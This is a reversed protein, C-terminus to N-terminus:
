EMMGFHCKTFYLMAIKTLLELIRTNGTSKLCFMKKEEKFFKSFEANVEEEESLTLSYREMLFPKTADNIKKSYEDHRYIRRLIYMCVDQRIEQFWVYRLGSHNNFKNVLLNAMLVSANLQNDSAIQNNLKDYADNGINKKELWSKTESTVFYIYKM